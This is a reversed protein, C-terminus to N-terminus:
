GVFAVSDTSVNPMPQRHLPTRWFTGRNCKPQVGISVSCSNTIHLVQKAYHWIILRLCLACRFCYLISETLEYSMYPNFSIKLCNEYFDLQENVTDNYHEYATGNAHM